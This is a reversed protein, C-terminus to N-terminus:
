IKEVASEDIWGDSGNPIRIEIWSGIKDTILVKTGEHLVFIDQSNDDPSSKVSVTPEFIIAENSNKVDRYQMFANLLSSIGAFVFLLAFWFTIKRINIANALLYISFLVLAFVFFIIAMIAWIDVSFLQRFDRVWQLYFPQPLIDLKDIIKTNAVKINHIIKQNSPDLKSAREFNLIARPYDKLKFYANGLNYYLLPSVMGGSIVQEYLQVANQYNEKQYEANAQSITEQFNNSYGALASLFCFIFLIKKM